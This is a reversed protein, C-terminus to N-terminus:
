LRCWRVHAFHNLKQNEQTKQSIYEFHKDADKDVIKHQRLTDNQTVVKETKKHWNTSFILAYKKHWANKRSSPFWTESKKPKFNRESYVDM